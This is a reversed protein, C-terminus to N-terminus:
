TKPSYKRRQIEHRMQTLLKPKNDEASFTRKKDM